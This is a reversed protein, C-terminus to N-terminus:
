IPYVCLLSLRVFHEPKQVHLTDLTDFYEYYLLLTDISQM